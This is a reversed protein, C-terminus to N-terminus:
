LFNRVMVVVLSIFDIVLYFTMLTAVRDIATQFWDCVKESKLILIFLLLVTFFTRAIVAGYIWRLPHASTTLIQIVMSPFPKGLLFYLQNIVASFGVYWVAASLLALRRQESWKKPLFLGVLFLIIFIFITEIFAAALGYAGVGIADWANNRESVWSFDWLILVFTWVHTFFGASLFLSWLSPGSFRTIRNIAPEPKIAEM